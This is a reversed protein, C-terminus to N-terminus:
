GIPKMDATEEWAGDGRRLFSAFAMDRAMASKSM